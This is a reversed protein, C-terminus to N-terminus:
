VAVFMAYNDGLRGAKMWRDEAAFLTFLVANHEWNQPDFTHAQNILVPQLLGCGCGHYAEMAFGADQCTSVLEDSRVAESPDVAVVAEVPVRQVERHHAKHADPM